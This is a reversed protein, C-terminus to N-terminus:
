VPTFAAAGFSSAGGAAQEILQLPNIGQLNLCHRIKYLRDAVTSWYALLQDNPPICFFLTEGSAAVATV